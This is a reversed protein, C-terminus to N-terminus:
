ILIFINVKNNESNIIKTKPVLFLYLEILANKIESNKM